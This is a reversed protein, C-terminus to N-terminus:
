QLTGEIRWYISGDKERGLLKADVMGRRLLFYDGFTHWHDIMANVEKETYNKGLEFKQAMYALILGKKAQKSPWVKIRGQDDLFGKIQALLEDKAPADDTVTHAMADTGLDM